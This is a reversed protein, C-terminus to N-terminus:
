AVLRRYRAWLAVWGGATAVSVVAVGRWADGGPAAGFIWDNVDLAAGPLNLFAAAEAAAGSLLETGIVSLTSSVLFLALVGAAAYARRDTFSAVALGITTLLAAIVAGSAMARPAIHWSERLFVAPSDATLLHTLYILLQPLWLIGLSVIFFAAWRAAVYDLPTLPRVLYLIIVGSRREPALLEPALTAAFLLLPFLAFGYYARNGLADAVAASVLSPAFAALFGIVAAVVVAPLFALGIIAVPLVKQRAPRGLALAARMGDAWIARRARWRGQRPGDYRQFRLDYVAGDSRPVVTPPTSAGEHAM